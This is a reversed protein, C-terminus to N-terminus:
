LFLPAGFGAGYAPMGFFPSGLSYTYIHKHKGFMIGFLIYRGSNTTKLNEALTACKSDVAM